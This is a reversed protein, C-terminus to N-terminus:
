YLHFNVEVNVLVSVPRGDKVSPQFKWTKVAEIAKEDLGMGLTRAVRIDRTHGDPAVVLTLVVIGQMKAKRAEDSYQPDPAYIARPASVGGGVRYIGGGYGGGYGPGVGPGRGPGVGGGEGSGIGGGVGTGNSATLVNSLPDGTIGLKSLQVDPPGVVTPTAVLKPDENRVVIAPPTIQERAFRPADGRSAEFKDRDGGGGGGGAITKSPPLTYTGIDTAISTTQRTVVEHRAMWLSSTAILLLAAAHMAASVGFPSRKMTAHEAFLSPLVAPAIPIVEGHRPRELEARLSARFDTRPALTLDDAIPLLERVLPDFPEPAFEDGSLIHEVAEDLQDYLAPSSM